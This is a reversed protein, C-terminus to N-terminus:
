NRRPTPLDPFEDRSLIAASVESTKAPTGPRQFSRRQVQLVFRDTLRYLYVMNTLVGTKGAEGGEVDKRCFPALPYRVLRLVTGDAVPFKLQALNARFSALEDSSLGSAPLDRQGAEANVRVPILVALCVGVLLLTKM